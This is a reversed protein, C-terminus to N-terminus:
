NTGKGGCYRRTNQSLEKSYLFLTTEQSEFHLKALPHPCVSLPDILANLRLAEVIRPDLIENEGKEEKEEFEEDVLDQLLEVGQQKSPVGVVRFGFKHFADRGIIVDYKLSEMPTISLTVPVKVLSL